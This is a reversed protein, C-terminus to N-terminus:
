GLDANVACKREARGNETKGVKGEEAVQEEVEDVGEGDAKVGEVVLGYKTTVVGM